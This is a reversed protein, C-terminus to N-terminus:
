NRNNDYWQRQSTSMAKWLKKMKWDEMKLLQEKERDKRITLKFDSALYEIRQQDLRWFLFSLQNPTFSGREQVYSIFSNINFNQEKTLLAVLVNIVKKKKANTILYQRDRQVKKKSKETSLIRGRNDIAPIEFKNICESGVLLENDTLQNIIRFQYRIDPHECLECDETPTELDYMDGTYVWEKLAKQFDQKERSLPLLNKASKSVWSMVFVM